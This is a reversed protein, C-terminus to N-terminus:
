EGTLIKYGDKTVAVTHEFHASLRGDDTCITWGDDLMYIDRKGLTLMPEIAIVMGERLIPGSGAKGYNPVDPKEHIENGVGHGVLEQIVGLKHSRAYKEIANSVDGIHAGPRVQKIGEYLAKETHELMYDVDKNPTNGVKYSWGSDAHYGKYCVVIDISVLDNNKLKKSGPIGHVVEDNISVCLSSPFGMYGKTSPIAGRSRIYEEALTDLEKTTIGEKIYPLLYKHTDNVIRGAEHILDIERSSKIRIM